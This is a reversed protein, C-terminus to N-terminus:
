PLEENINITNGNITVVDFDVSLVRSSANLDLPAFRKLNVVGETTIIREKFFSDIIEPPTGKVFIAQFYPLGENRNLFWERYFFKLRQTLRQSIEQDSNHETLSWKNETIDLDGDSNVKLQTM